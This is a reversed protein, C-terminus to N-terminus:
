DYQNTDYEIVEWNDDVCSSEDYFVIDHDKHTLLFNFIEKHPYLHGTEPKTYSSQGVWITQKCNKCGINYTQGM